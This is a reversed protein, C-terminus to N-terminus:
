WFHALVFAFLTGQREPYYGFTCGFYPWGTEEKAGGIKPRGDDSEFEDFLQCGFFHVTKKPTHFRSNEITKGCLTM